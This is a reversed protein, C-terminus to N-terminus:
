FAFITAINWKCKSINWSYKSIHTLFTTYFSIFMIELFEIDCIYLCNKKLFITYNSCEVKIQIYEM